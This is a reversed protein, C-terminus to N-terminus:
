SESVVPAALNNIPEGIDNTLKELEANVSGILTPLDENDDLGKMMAVGIKQLTKLYRQEEFTWNSHLIRRIQGVINKILRMMHRKGIHPADKNLGQVATFVDGVKQGLYAREETLLFSRFHNKM